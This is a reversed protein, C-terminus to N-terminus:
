SRIWLDKPASGNLPKAMRTLPDDPCSMRCPSRTLWPIALYRRSRAPPPALNAGGGALPRQPAMRSPGLNGRALGRPSRSSRTLSAGTALPAAQSDLPLCGCSAILLGGSRLRM